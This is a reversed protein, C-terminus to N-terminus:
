VYQDLLPKVVRRYAVMGLTVGLVLFLDRQTFSPM